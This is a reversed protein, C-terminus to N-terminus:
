TGTRKNRKRGSAPKGAAREAQRAGRRKPWDVIQKPPQRYVWRMRVITAGAILLLASSGYSLASDALAAALVGVALYVYPSSEYWLEELKM